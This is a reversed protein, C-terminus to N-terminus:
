RASPLDFASFEDREVKINVHRCYKCRYYRTTILTASATFNEVKIDPNRCEPSIEQRRCKECKIKEPKKKEGKYAKINESSKSSDRHGCYKCKWYRTITVTYSDETSLEKIDPEEREEYAYERHCKKCKTAEVYKEDSLIGMGSLLLLMFVIFSPFFLLYLIWEEFFSGILFLLALPVLCFAIILRLGGAIHVAAEGYTEISPIWKLTRRSKIKGKYTTTYIKQTCDTSYDETEGENKTQLKEEIVIM